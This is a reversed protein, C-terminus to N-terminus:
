NVIEDGTKDVKDPDFDSYLWNIEKLEAVAAKVDLLSRWIVKKKTPIGDLVM